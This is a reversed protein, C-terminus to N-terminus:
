VLSVAIEKGAVSANKRVRSRPQATPGRGSDILINLGWVLVVSLQSARSRPRASRSISASVTSAQARWNSLLPKARWLLVGQSALVAQRRSDKGTVKVDSFNEHEYLITVAEFHFQTQRAPARFPLGSPYHNLKIIPRPARIPFSKERREFHCIPSPTMGFPTFSREASFRWSWLLSRSKSCVSVYSLGRLDM